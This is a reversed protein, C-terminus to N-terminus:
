KEYGGEQWCREIVNVEIIGTSVSIDCRDVIHM